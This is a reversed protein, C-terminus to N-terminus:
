DVKQPEKVGYTKARILIKKAWNFHTKVENMRQKNDSGAVMSANTEDWSTISLADQYDEYSVKYCENIVPIQNPHIATKGLFGCLLDRDIEKRLGKEWKPGSYYEWVPGSVVYDTGFVTVIDAFLNAIPTIDHITQDARRRFGFCHCLDNGGVRINLIYEKIADTKSKLFYLVDYRSRLDIMVPNEFIPMAYVPKESRSNVHIIQSIYADANEPSFKPIIFGTLIEKAEGLKKYIGSIQEPCRVRVFIKPLFFETKQLAKHISNMSQVLTQEAEEVFNDNITDELCLALSYQTGFQQQIVSDAVSTRNGPCYLLAGVSYALLLKEM